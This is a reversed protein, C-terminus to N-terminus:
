KIELQNLKRLNAGIMPHAQARDSVINRLRFQSSSLHEEIILPKTTTKNLFVALKVMSANLPAKLKRVFTPMGRAHDGAFGSGLLELHLKGRALVPMWYVRTCEKSAM